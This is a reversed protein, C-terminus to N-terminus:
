TREIPCGWPENRPDDVENGLLLADVANELYVVNPWPKDATRDDIAGWYRLRGDRDIVCVTPTVTVGFLDAVRGDADRLVPFEIRHEELAWRIREPTDWAHADVGLVVVGRPKYAEYFGNLYAAYRQTVDCTAAWFVLVVIHGRYEGLRYEKGELDPLTFDPVQQGISVSM